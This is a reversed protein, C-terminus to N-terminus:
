KIKINIQQQIEPTIRYHHKEYYESPLMGYQEKFCNRFYKLDTFGYAFAAESISLNQEVIAKAVNKLKINRIFHNISLGSIAKIKRYLSTRSYGLEKCLTPVSVEGNDLIKIVANELTNIFELEKKPIGKNKANIGTNNSALKSKLDSRTKILNDVRSLLLASDFPKELYDDAGISYGEMKDENSNKASLLIVPIHSTLPNTKIQQCFKFGNMKPMMIDSIIIDPIHDNAAKYGQEGDAAKVIKFKKHLIRELYNVIDDNDDIILAIKANNENIEEESFEGALFDDDINLIMKKSEDNLRVDSRGRYKSQDISLTVKFISGKNEKSKLYISGKHLDIFKKCLALGIGTGGIGISNKSQYFPDFILKQSEEDIGVGSDRIVIKLQKSAKFVKFSIKGGSPTFKFANSLLNNLIIQIKEIDCWAYLEEPFEYSFEIGKKKAQYSFLETEQILLDTLNYRSINLVIRNTEIRRFELLRNVMKLLINSNKHIMKLLNKQNSSLGKDRILDKIPGDILTLPTRLEHSFNTYFLLKEQTVEHEQQRLKKEFFLSQKLKIQRNNHRIILVVVFVLVFLYLTIAWWSLFWPSSIFIDIQKAQDISHRSASNSVSLTYQGPPVNRYTISNSNNTQMWKDDYGKLIYYYTHDNSYPFELTNFYVTFTNQDYALTVKKAISINESLIPNVEQPKAKIENNYISLGSFIIKEVHTKNQLKEPDFIVLGKISGFALNESLSVVSNHNYPSALIGDTQKFHKFSSDSPNYVSIGQNNSYWIKDNKKVLGFVTTTKQNENKSVLHYSFDHKNFQILGDFRTGLWILHEDEIMSFVIPTDNDDPKKWNYSTINNTYPNYCVLGNNGYLGLWILGSHDLLISRIDFGATIKILEIKSTSYHYKYLGGSNTGIWMIGSSGEKFCRIDNVELSSNDKHLNQLAKSEIDYIFLGSSYTGVWIQNYQDVKASIIAKNNLEPIPNRNIKVSGYQKFNIGKGDTGIWLNSDNDVCLGWVSSMSLTNKDFPNHKLTIIDEGRANFYNLGGQHTGLWVSGQNDKFIESITRHSVSKEDFGEHFHQISLTKSLLQDEFEIRILGNNRSGAWLTNHDLLISLIDSDEIGNGQKYHHTHQHDLGIKIIGNDTAAWIDSNSDTKIDYIRKFPEEANFKKIQGNSLDFYYLGNNWTGIWLLSDNQISLSFVVGSNLIWHQQDYLENLAKFGNEQKVNIGGGFTGIYLNGKSDEAMSTISKHTPGLKSNPLFVDFDDYKYNYRCLGNDTLAWLNSKSDTFLNQVHNHPISRNNSEERTLHIFKHGNYRFLGENTAIWINGLTDQEISNIFTNPFGNQENLQYFKYQRHNLRDQKDKGYSDPM